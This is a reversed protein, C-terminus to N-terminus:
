KNTLSVSRWGYNHWEMDESRIQKGNISTEVHKRIIGEYVETHELVDGNEFTTKSLTKAGVDAYENRMSQNGHGKIWTIIEQTNM